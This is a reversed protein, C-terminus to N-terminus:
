KFNIDFTNSGSKVEFELKQDSYKKPLVKEADFNLDTKNPDPEFFASVTVKHKGVIAGAADGTYYLRYQGSADTKGSSPRGGQEPTFQVVLDATPKGDVTVTGAVKGLDPFGAPRGSCGAAMLFPVLLVFVVLLRKM